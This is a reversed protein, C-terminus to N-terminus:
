TRSLKVTPYEKTVVPQLLSILMLLGNKGDDSKIYFMKGAIDGYLCSLIVLKLCIKSIQVM